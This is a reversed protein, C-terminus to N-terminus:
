SLFNPLAGGRGFATVDKGLKERAGVVDGDLSGSEFGRRVRTENEGCVLGSLDVERKLDALNQLRDFDCTRYDLEVRL